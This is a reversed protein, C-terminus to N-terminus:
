VFVAHNLLQLISHVLCFHSQLHRFLDNAPFSGASSGHLTVQVSLVVAQRLIQM